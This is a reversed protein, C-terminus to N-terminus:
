RDAWWCGRPPDSEEFEMLTLWMAQQHEPMDSLAVPEREVTPVVEPTTRLLRDWANLDARTLGPALPPYIAYHGSTITENM